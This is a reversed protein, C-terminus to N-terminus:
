KKGLLEVDDVVVISGEVLYSELLIFEQWTLDPDDGSDLYAFDVTRELDELYELSDERVLEVKSKLKLERLYQDAVSTDLDVSVFKHKYQSNKIFEAIYKTSHGDGVEYEVSPNRISGTEIIFLPRKLKSELEVLLEVLKTARSM